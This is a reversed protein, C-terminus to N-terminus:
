GWFLFMYFVTLVIWLEVTYVIKVPREFNNLDMYLKRLHSAKKGNVPNWM